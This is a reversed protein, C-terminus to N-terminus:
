DVRTVCYAKATSTNITLRESCHFFVPISAPAEGLLIRQINLAVRRAVRSLDADSHLGVVSGGRGPQHRHRCLEAPPTRDVRPVVALGDPGLGLPQALYVADVGQPLAQLLATAEGFGSVISASLGAASAAAEYYAELGPIASAYDSIAVHSVVPGGAIVLDVSTARYLLALGQRAGEITGDTTVTYDNSFRVDFEGQTLAAVEHTLRDRMATGLGGDIVVGVNFTSRQAVTPLVLVGLGILCSLATALLGTRSSWRQHTM